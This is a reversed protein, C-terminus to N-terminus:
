RITEGLGSSIMLAKNRRNVAARVAERVGAGKLKVPTGREPAFVIDGIKGNEVFVEVRGGSSSIILGDSRVLIGHEGAERCVTVAANDVDMIRQIAEVVLKRAEGANEMEVKEGDADLLIKKVNYADSEKAMEFEVRGLEGEFFGGDEGYGSKEYTSEVCISRFKLRQEEQKM